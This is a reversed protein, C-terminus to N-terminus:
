NANAVVAPDAMRIRRFRAQYFMFIGYCVLAACDLALLWNGGVSKQMTHLADSVGGASNADHQYGALFFFGGILAFLVARGCLGIGGFIRARRCQASSMQATKFIEMFKGSFGNWIQALAAAMVIVGIIMLLWHGFPQNMVTRPGSKEETNVRHGFVVELALYGIFSYAIASIVYTIRSLAGKDDPNVLAGILRWLAYGALGVAIAVLLVSGFPQRALFNIVGKQNMEDSRQGIHFNWASFVALVGILAYVLGKAAYGLRAVPALWPQAKAAAKHVKATPDSASSQAVAM